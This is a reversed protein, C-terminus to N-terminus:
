GAKGTALAWMTGLFLLGLGSSVALFVKYMQNVKAYYDAAALSTEMAKAMATTQNTEVSKIKDEYSRRLDGIAEAHKSDANEMERRMQELKTELTGKFDQKVEKLDAEIREVKEGQNAARERLVEIDSSVQQVQEAIGDLRRELRDFGRGYKAFLRELTLEFEGGQSAPRDNPTM